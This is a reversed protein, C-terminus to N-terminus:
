CRRTSFRGGISSVGYPWYKSMNDLQSAPSGSVEATQSKLREDIEAGLVEVKFTERKVVNSLGSKFYYSAGNWLVIAPGSIIAPTSM